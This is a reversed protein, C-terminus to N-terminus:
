DTRLLRHLQVERTIEFGLRLYIDIAARNTSVVHLFSHAHQQRHDHLLRTILAAAYGHGRHDPHTCVGSIERYPALILREGAMAILDGNNWIGYYRGMVCTRSRFFGPFAIDTLAVMARADTCSLPAIQAVPPHPTPPRLHEPILLQLCPIPGKYRIGPHTPPLDGTVSTLENRALLAHLDALAAPTNEALVAFPAVDSPYKRALGHTLSLHAHSGRLAADIPNELPDHPM